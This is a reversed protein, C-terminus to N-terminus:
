SAAQRQQFCLLILDARRRVGFKGLLNSVHFKVTRESINLRSAIEKNALNELLADLVERERRSLDTSADAKLRRARSNSLISDVFEALTARPVWFGGNAMQPLARCLQDGAEAYTLLGKAGHRLLSHSEGQTFREAVVLVRAGPAQEFVNTILAATAPQATQADVVYLLAKPISIRRLDPALMSELQRLILRYGSGELLRSFDALVL